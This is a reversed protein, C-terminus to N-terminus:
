LLIVDLWVIVVLVLCKISMDAIRIFNLVRSDLFTFLFMKLRFDAFIYSYEVQANFVCM